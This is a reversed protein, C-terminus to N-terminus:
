SDQNPLHGLTQHLPFCTSMQNENSLQYLLQFPHAEIWSFELSESVWHCTMNIEFNDLVFLYYDTWQPGLDM